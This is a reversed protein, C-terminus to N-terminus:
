EDRGLQGVPSAGVPPESVAESPLGPAGAVADAMRRRRARIRGYRAEARAAKAGDRAYFRRAWPSNPAALRVAAVLSVLPIFVGLVGLVPKGKFIALAALLVDIAVSVAVTALSSGNHPLDFPAMGLVILGGILAAIIVADLSARGEDAWYVDRLHIWLAFEDLTLGAGVGFTGALIENWPSTPRIVFSLLGALMLMM